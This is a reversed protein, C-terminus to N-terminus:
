EVSPKYQNAMIDTLFELAANPKDKQQEILESMNERAELMQMILDKAVQKPNDFLTQMVPAEYVEKFQEFANGLQKFPNNQIPSDSDTQKYKLAAVSTEETVARFAFRAIEDNDYNLSKAQEFAADLNGSFFDGAISDLQSMLGALAQKEDDDLDGSIEYSFSAEFSQSRSFNASSGDETGQFSAYQADSASAFASIRVTDGDQTKVELSFSNKQQQAAGAELETSQTALLAANDIAESTGNELEDLGKQILAYTDDVDQKIKGNLMNMSEIIDRAESFGQEIGSRAKALLEDQGEQDLGQSKQSKIHGEVFGLIRNAVTQPAFNDAQQYQLQQQGSLGLKENLRQQVEKMLAQQSEFHIQPQLADLKNHTQAQEYKTQPRNDIRATNRSDLPSLNTM